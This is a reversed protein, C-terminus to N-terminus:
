LVLRTDRGFGKERLPCLGEAAGLAKARDARGVRSRTDLTALALALDLLPAGRLALSELLALGRGALLDRDEIAM